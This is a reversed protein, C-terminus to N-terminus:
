KKDGGASSVLAFIAIFIVTGALIVGMKGRSELVKKTSASTETTKTETTTPTAATATNADASLKEEPTKIKETSDGTPITKEPMDTIGDDESTEKKVAEKNEVVVEINEQEPMNEELLIYGQKDKKLGKTLVKRADRRLKRKEAREDRLPKTNDRDIQEMDESDEMGDYIEEDNDYIEQLKLFYLTIGKTKDDYKGIASIVRQAAGQIGEDNLWELFKEGTNQHIYRDLIKLNKRMIFLKNRQKSIEDAKDPQLAQVAYMFDETSPFNGYTETDLKVGKLQDALNPKQEIAM